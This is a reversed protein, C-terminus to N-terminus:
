RRCYLRNVLIAGLIPTIKSDTITFFDREEPSGFFRCRTRARRLLTAVRRPTVARLLSRKVFDAGEDCKLLFAKRKHISAQRFGKCALKRARYQGRQRARSRTKKVHPKFSFRVSSYFLRVGRVSCFVSVMYPAPKKARGSSNAGCDRVPRSRRRWATAKM